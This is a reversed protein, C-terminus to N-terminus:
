GEGRFYSLEGEGTRFSDSPQSTPMEGRSSSLNLVLIMGSNLVLDEEKLECQVGARLKNTVYSFAEELYGFLKM